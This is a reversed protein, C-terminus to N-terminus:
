RETEFYRDIYEEIKDLYEQTKDPDSTMAHGSNPFEIYDYTVGYEELKEMLVYKLNVDVVKDNVGYALITPVSTENVLHAPSIMYAAQHVEGTAVMDATLEVGTFTQVFSAIEAPDTDETVGWSTWDYPDFSAPGTMQFVFKIPIPSLEPERYAYILALCGGASEGTAAMETLNYGRAAAEDKILAVQERMQEFMLNLNSVHEGDALTYNLSACVIGKSAFYKCTREGDAKDGSNFSGGHLYIILAYDEKGETPAPLYLDFGTQEAANVHLDKVVTGVSDNWEVSWPAYGTILENATGVFAFVIFSGAFLVLCLAVYLINLLIKLLIKFPNKKTKTTNENNM